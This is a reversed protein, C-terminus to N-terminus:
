ITRFISHHNGTTIMKRAVSLFYNNFTNAIDELNYITRNDIQLCLPHRRDKGAGKGENIIKWTGKIKNESNSIIRNCHIRRAPIIVKSLINCYKKYFIKLRHNNILRCLLFLKKKRNGSM